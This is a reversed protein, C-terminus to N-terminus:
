KRRNRNGNSEIRGDQEPEESAKMSETIYREIAEKMQWQLVIITGHDLAEANYEPLEKAVETWFAKSAKEVVEELKKPGVM